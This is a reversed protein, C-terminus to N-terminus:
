AFMACASCIASGREGACDTEPSNWNSYWRLAKKRGKETCVFTCRFLGRRGAGETNGRGGEQVQVSRVPRGGATSAGLQYNSPQKFYYDWANDGLRPDYYRGGGRSDRAGEDPVPGSRV